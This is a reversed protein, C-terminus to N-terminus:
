KRMSELLERNKRSREEQIRNFEDIDNVRQSPESEQSTKDTHKDWTICKQKWNKVPKGSGDHWKGAEYYDFFRQADVALEKESIYAKVEELTPPTFNKQQKKKSHNKGVPMSELEIDLEKELELEQSCHESLTRGMNAQGLKEVKKRAERMRKAANTESGILSHLQTLYLAGNDLVEVLGVESLLKLARVVTDENTRTIEGLKKVDYPILLNGVARILVGDHKLSKLCLKLYFLSYEKGNSQEEIWSIVDDDFFDEKLKLWFYRQSDHGSM